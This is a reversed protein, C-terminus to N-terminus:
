KRRIHRINLHAEFRHVLEVETMDNVSCGRVSLCIEEIISSADIEDIQRQKGCMPGATDIASVHKM